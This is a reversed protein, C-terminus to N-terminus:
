KHMAPMGADIVEVNFVRTISDQYGMAPPIILTGKGGKKMKMVGNTFGTIMQDVGLQFTLLDQQPSLENTDFITGDLYKGTYRLSVTMGFQIAENTGPSNEIYYIGDKDPKVTVHNDALYKKLLKADQKKMEPAMMQAKQRISGLSDQIVQMIHMQRNGEAVFDDWKKKTYISDVRLAFGIYKMTDYKPEKFSFKSKVHPGGQQDYVTDVYYKQLSDLRIFFSASDGKHFKTMVDMFDGKYKFKSLPIPFAMGPQRPNANLDMFVSDKADKFKLHVFMAGGVECTKGKDASTKMMLLWSGHGQDEYGPFPSEDACSVILFAAVIAIPFIIKKM